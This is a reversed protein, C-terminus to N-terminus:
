FKNVIAPSAIDGNRHTIPTKLVMYPICSIMKSFKPYKIEYRM